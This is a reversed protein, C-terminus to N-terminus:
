FTCQCQMKYASQYCKSKKSYFKMKLANVSTSSHCRERCKTFLEMAYTALLELRYYEGGDVADEEEGDFYKTPDSLTRARKRSLTGGTRLM